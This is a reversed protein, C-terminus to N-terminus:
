LYTSCYGALAGLLAGGLLFLRGARLWDIAAWRRPEAEASPAPPGATALARGWKRHHGKGRVWDRAFRRLDDKECPLSTLCERTDLVWDSEIPKDFQVGVIEGKRWVVSGFVEFDLWKLIGNRIETHDKVKLRAGSESLDLLSVTQRGDLTLLSAPIGARLRAKGRRPHFDPIAAAAVM